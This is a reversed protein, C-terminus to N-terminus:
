NGLGAVKCRAAAECVGTDHFFAGKLNIDLVTDYDAETVDCFAANKEVGANNVLVDCRVLSSGRRKLSIRRHGCDEVRRCPGCDSEGGFAEAKTKTEEAADEHGRFDIVVSAGESAFRLAIGQGIGSSSGTVIAIKGALRGQSM